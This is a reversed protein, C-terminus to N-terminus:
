RTQRNVEEVFQAIYRVFATHLAKDNVSMEPSLLLNSGEQYTIDAPSPSVEITKDDRLHQIARYLVAVDNSSLARSLTFQLKGRESDAKALVICVETIILRNPNM